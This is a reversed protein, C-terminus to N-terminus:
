HAITTKPADRREQAAQKTQEKTPPATDRGAAENAEELTVWQLPLENKEIMSRLKNAKDAPLTTAIQQYTEALTKTMRTQRVLLEARDAAIKEEGLVLMARSKGLEKADLGLADALWKLDADAYAAAPVGGAKTQGAVTFPLLCGLLAGTLLLKRM